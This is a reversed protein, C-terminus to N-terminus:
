VFQYFVENALGMAKWDDSVSNSCDSHGVPAFPPLESDCVVTHKPIQERIRVSLIDGIKLM